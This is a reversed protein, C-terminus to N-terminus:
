LATCEIQVDECSFTFTLKLPPFATTRPRARYSRLSAGTPAPRATFATVCPKTHAKATFLLQGAYRSM